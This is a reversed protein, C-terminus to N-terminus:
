IRTTTEYIKTVEENTLLNGIKKRDINTIEFEYITVPRPDIEVVEGSRAAYYLRQGDKKIASHMPPMQMIAGTFQATADLVKQPTINELSIFNGKYFVKFYNANDKFAVMHDAVTYSPNFFGVNLIKGDYFIKFYGDSTVYAVLDDGVSYSTTPYSDLQYTTGKYFVKFQRNIDTYAVIDRGVAYDQVLFDEQEIIQGHYFLRFQNAYNLYAVMNDSVKVSEIAAGALFNEIPYITGNYYAKYENRVGDLFLLVSDGLFYETCLGTLNKIQGHDFVNLSKSNLYSVLNDSVRFENGFVFPITQFTNNYYIKFNRSNDLYPMAIRGVKYDIPILNDVKKLLGNDWLMMQNQFNQFVAIPQAQVSAGIILMLCSFLVKKLMPCSLYFFLALLM